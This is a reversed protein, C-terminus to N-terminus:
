IIEDVIGLNVAEEASFYVNIKKSIIKQIQKATMNTQESLNKIYLKQLHKIEKTENEIDVLDGISAAAVPHIMVRCNRGIKRKGKTGSALLLVGASMVKGLGITEIDREKKVIEMVDCISFMEHASGGHTSIIMKLPPIEEEEETKTKELSQFLNYVVAHALEEDIDRFVCLIKNDGAETDTVLFDIFNSTSEEKSEEKLSEEEEPNNEMKKAM